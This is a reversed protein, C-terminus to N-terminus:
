SKVALAAIAFIAMSFVMTWAVGIATHNYYLWDLFHNALFADIAGVDALNPRVKVAAEAQKMQYWSSVAGFVIGALAGTTLTKWEDRAFGIVNKNM